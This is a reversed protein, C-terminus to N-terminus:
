FNRERLMMLHERDLEREAAEAKERGQRVEQNGQSAMGGVKVGRRHESGAEVGM